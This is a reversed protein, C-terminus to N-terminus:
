IHVAVCSPYIAFSLIGVGHGNQMKKYHGYKRKNNGVYTLAWKARTHV